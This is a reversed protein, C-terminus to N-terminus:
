LLSEISERGDKFGKGYANYMDQETYTKFKIPTIIVTNDDKTKPSEGEMMPVKHWNAAYEVMVEDIKGNAHVYAEIFSEPIQASDYKMDDCMLGQQSANILSKDTTAIIKRDAKVPQIASTRLRLQNGQTIFWDGEKIEEDSTLYLHYNQHASNSKIEKTYDIFLSEWEPKPALTKVLETSIETAIMVVKCKKEM